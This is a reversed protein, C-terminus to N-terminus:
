GTKAAILEEMKLVKILLLITDKEMIVHKFYRAENRTELVHRWVEPQIDNTSVICITDSESAHALAVAFDTFTFKSSLYRKAEGIKDPKLAQQLYELLNIVAFDPNAPGGISIVKSNIITDKRASLLNLYRGILAAKNRLENLFQDIFEREFRTPSISSIFTDFRRSLEVAVNNDFSAAIQDIADFLRATREFVDEIKIFHLRNYYNIIGKDKEWDLLLCLWCSDTQENIYQNYSSIESIFVPIDKGKHSCIWCRQKKDFLCNSKGLALVLENGCIQLIKKHNVMNVTYCWTANESLRITKGCGSCTSIGERSFTGDVINPTNCKKCHQWRDQKLELIGISELRRLEKVRETETSWVSYGKRISVSM